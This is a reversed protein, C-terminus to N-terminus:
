KSQNWGWCYGTPAGTGWESLKGWCGSKILWGHSEPRSGFPSSVSLNSLSPLTMLLSSIIIVWKIMKNKILCALNPPQLYTHCWMEACKRFWGWVSMLWPPWVPDRCHVSVRREVNTRKLGPQVKGDCIIVSQQHDAQYWFAMEWVIAQRKGVSLELHASCIATSQRLTNLLLWTLSIMLANQCTEGCVGGNMGNKNEKM